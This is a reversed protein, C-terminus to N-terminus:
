DSNKPAYIEAGWYNSGRNYGCSYYDYDYVVMIREFSRWELGSRNLLGALSTCGLWRNNELPCSAAGIKKGANALLAKGEPTETECPWGEQGKKVEVIYKAM